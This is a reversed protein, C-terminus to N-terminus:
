MARPKSSGIASATRRAVSVRLSNAAHLFWIGCASTRWEFRAFKASAELFEKLQRVSIWFGAANSRYPGAFPADVDEIIVVAFWNIDTLCVLFNRAPNPTMQGILAGVGDRHRNKIRKFHKLDFNVRQRLKPRYICSVLVELFRLPMQISEFVGNMLFCFRLALELRNKVFFIWRFRDPFKRNWLRHPTAAYGILDLLQASMGVCSSRAASLDDGPKRLRDSFPLHLNTKAARKYGLGFTQLPQRIFAEFRHSAFAGDLSRRFVLFFPVTLPSTRRCHFHLVVANNHGREGLRWM